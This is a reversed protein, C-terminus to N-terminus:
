RSPAAARLPIGGGDRREVAPRAPNRRRRSRPGALHRSPAPDTPWPRGHPERWRVPSHGSQILNLYPSFMILRSSPATARATSAPHEPLEGDAGLPPPPEFPPWFPPPVAPGGGDVAATVTPLSKKLLACSPVDLGARVVTATPPVTVQVQVPVPLVAWLTWDSPEGLKVLLAM